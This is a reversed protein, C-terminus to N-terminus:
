IYIYISGKVPGRIYVTIYRTPATGLVYQVARFGGVRFGCVRFGLGEFRSARFGLGGYRLGRCQLDRLGLVRFGFGLGHSEHPHKALSRRSRPAAWRKPFCLPRRPECRLELNSVAGM